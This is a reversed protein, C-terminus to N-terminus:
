SMFNVYPDTKRVYSRTSLDILHVRVFPHRLRLDTRLRDTRHIVIGLIKDRERDITTDIESHPEKSTTRRRRRRRSGSEKRVTMEIEEDERAKFTKKKRKPKTENEVTVTTSNNLPPLNSNNPSARRQRRSVPPQLHAESALFSNTLCFKNHIYSIVKADQRMVVQRAPIQEIKVVLM